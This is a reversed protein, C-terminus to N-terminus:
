ITGSLGVLSIVILALGLLRFFQPTEAAVLRQHLRQGILHGVLACPFAWLQAKLQLDVGAVLFSIMKITVLIFWLVFLTDRLQHKAVHRAFISIILPAGTLSTGSVYGGLMLLGREVWPHQSRVPRNIVYGIAYVLVIGFIIVTMLRPEITLLGIVGIIKPVIMIKLARKLFGWDVNSATQTPTATTTQENTQGNAQASTQAQAQERRAQQNKRHSQWTIWGSFVLLHIAIPPLFLLPDDAVLLFFPLSLVAGGFGLGSRVIGSWVFILGILVLQTTSLADM